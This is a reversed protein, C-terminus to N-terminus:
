IGLRPYVLEQCDRRLVFGACVSGSHDSVGNCLLYVLPELLVVSATGIAHTLLAQLALVDM